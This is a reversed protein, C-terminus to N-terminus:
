FGSDFHNVDPVTFRGGWRLGAAEWPGALQQWWDFPIWDRPIHGYGPWLISVDIARGSLHLSRAAGDVELNRAASRRGSIVVLPIGGRRVWAVFHWAFPLFSRDLSELHALTEDM